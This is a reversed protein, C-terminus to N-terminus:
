VVSKRDTGTEAASDTGVETEAVITDSDPGQTALRSAWVERRDALVDGDLFEDSYVGRYFRRWSDAHLAAIGEADAAVAQRFSVSPQGAAASDMGSAM